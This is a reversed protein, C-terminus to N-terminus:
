DPLFMTKIYHKHSPFHVNLYKCKSKNIQLRGCEHRSGDHEDRGLQQHDVVQVGGVVHVFNLVEKKVDPVLQINSIM